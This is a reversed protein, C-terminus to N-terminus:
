LISGITGSGLLFTANQTNSENRNFNNFLLMIIHYYYYLIVKERWWPPTIMDLRIVRVCDYLMCGKALISSVQAKIKLLQARKM